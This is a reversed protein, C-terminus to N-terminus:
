HSSNLRTSKRDTKVDTKEALAAATDGLDQRTDEIERRIQEPSKPEEDVPAGVQSTDEAM